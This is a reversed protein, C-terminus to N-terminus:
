SPQGAAPLPRKNSRSRRSRRPPESQEGASMQSVLGHTHKVPSPSSAPVAHHAHTQLEIVHNALFIALTLWVPTAATAGLEFVTVGVVALAFLITLDVTNGTALRIERDLKRCLEVVARASDSKRALYEAEQQIRNALIDIETVPLADPAHDLLRGHFEHQRDVDYHLVVSGTLPNVTVREIGPITAFTESIEQLLQPNGKGSPIKMRVRGPVQHAISLKLTTKTMLADDV